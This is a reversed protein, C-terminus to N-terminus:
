KGRRRAWTKWDTNVPDDDKLHEFGYIVVEDGNTLGTLIEVTGPEVVQGVQVEQIHARNDEVRFVMARNGQRIAAISPVTVANKTIHLRVFGSVGAKIRYQPNLVEVVVPLTRTETNVKPPIRVLTGSFTEDSFCDLQVEASQGIRADEIREQPLDMVVYVPDLQQMQTITQGFEVRDGVALDVNGVFGDVTAQLVCGALDLRALELNLKAQEYRAEADLAADVVQQQPDIRGPYDKIAAAASLEAKRHNLVQLFLTDDFEILPSGKPVFSGTVAHIARVVYYRPGPESARGTVVSVTRSAATVGTAGLIEIVDSQSVRTTRVPIPHGLKRAEGPVALERASRSTFGAQAAVVTTVVLALAVLRQKPSSNRLYKGIDRTSVTM